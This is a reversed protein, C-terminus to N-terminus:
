PLWYGFKKRMKLNRILNLPLPKSKKGHNIMEVAADVVRQASKGDKYPHMADIQQAIADLLSPTPSFALEISQELESPTTIDILCAEPAVNKYTVVPKNLLIFETIISSTDSVLVDATQLLSAVEATEVIQLKDHEIAKFQEVLEKAMKPHFKVLWQYNGKKSLAEIENILEPASTMSPSFTPAYMVCPLEPNARAIPKAQFLHDLKPWGTEVVDFHKHKQALENFKDTFFKGQTCYLDFCDRIRFHGKKKWEFGHFLQVKIGPIVRPVINGPVFTANPNFKIAEALDTTFKEDKTFLHTNVENGFICWLIEDGRQHALTQIPRLIEFSYNQSIFLLFRM